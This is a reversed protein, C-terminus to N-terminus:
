AKLKNCTKRTCLGFIPVAQPFFLVLASAVSAAKEMEPPPAPTPKTNCLQQQASWDQGAPSSWSGKGLNVTGTCFVM